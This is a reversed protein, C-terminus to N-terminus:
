PDHEATLKMEIAKKCGSHFEQLEGKKYLDGLESDTKAKYKDFEKSKTEYNSM